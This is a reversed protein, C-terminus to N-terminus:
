FYSVKEVTWDQFVDERPFKFGVSVKDVVIDYASNIALIDTGSYMGVAGFAFGMWTQQRLWAVLKIRSRDTPDFNINVYYDEFLQTTVGPEIRYVLAM